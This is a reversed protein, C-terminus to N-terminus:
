LASLTRCGNDDSCIIRNRGTEKAQYLAKDARALLSEITEQINTLSAIGVSLTIPVQMGPCELSEEKLTLLLREAIEYARESNTEPLLLVFEDGGLRAFIDIDRINKLCIKTLFILAQDGVAHGYTDNIQKFHDIDLMLLSLPRDFRTSRKLESLALELFHHRNSIATLEDTTAQHLLKEELRKRDTIDNHTGFMMLPKGDASRSIVSGRSHVWVWHGDKHKMRSEIDYYPLEGSLHRAQLEASQKWDDPHTFNEWTNISTPSIEDLTYGIIQAWVDNFVTEGTQINWEWTGIHTGEIISKLRWHADNLAQEAKKRDTIDSIIGVSYWEGNIELSSLSLRIPIESGDKGRAQIEHTKGIAAGKGTKQFVPFATNHAEHYRQPVILHHLNQGIAEVSTYGLIREAAPNWYSVQGKPDMMLIADQASDTIARIKSESKRLEDEAKKRETIDRGVSQFYITEGNKSAIPHYAWVMWRQSGQSDLNLVEISITSIERRLMRDIVKQIDDQTEQPLFSIFRTGLLDEKSKGFYNCYATNVFTLTTDPLWRCIPDTQDEIVTQYLSQSEQLAEEAWKRETIDRTVSIIHSEGHLKIVKASLIGTLQSGDKRQFVAELDNCFGKDNLVTILKQRDAPYYWINVDLSSKGIIETHTYGTQTSFGENANVIVGNNLRSILMADPSTNFIAEFHNKAEKMETNLSQNVMIILGFTEVLSITLTFIYTITQILTPSFYDHVPSLTVLEITRFIWFCGQTFFIAMNVTASANFTSFKYLLLGRATTFAITALVVSSIISRENIQDNVFTFYLYFPIWIVFVLFIFGRNEEKRLFRMIGIYIFIPGLIQFTNAAIITILKVNIVDRLLTLVVGIAISAFGILWWIGGRYSKNILYQLLLAIVQILNTIGMILIVTRIDINM